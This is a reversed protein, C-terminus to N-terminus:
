MYGCGGDRDCNMQDTLVKIRQQTIEQKCDDIILAHISGEKNPEAFWECEKERFALWSRKAELLEKTQSYKGYIRELKKDYFVKVEAFCANVMLQNKQCADSNTFERPTSYDDINPMVDENAQALSTLLLASLLVIGFKGRAM